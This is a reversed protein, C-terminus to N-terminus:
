TEKSAELLHHPLHRLAYLRSYGELTRWGLCYEAWRRHFGALRGRLREEVFERLSDYFIKFGATDGIQPSVGLFRRVHALILRCQFDPRGVLGALQEISVPDRSTLLLGMFDDVRDYEVADVREQIQRWVYRFVDPLTGIDAFIKLADDKSANSSLLDCVLKLILFNGKVQLAIKRCEEPPLPDTWFRLKKGLYNTADDLNDPSEPDLAYRHYAFPLSAKELWEPRASLLVFVGNPLKAPLPVADAPKGGVAEDLGDLILVKSERLKGLLAGLKEPAQDLINPPDLRFDAPLDEGHHEQLMAYITQACQIPQDHGGYRYFFCARKKHDKEWKLLFATKGLGAPATLIFYGSKNSKLFRDVEGRLHKRGVFEEENYHASLESLQDVYKPADKAKFVRTNPSSSYLVPIGWLGDGDPHAYYHDSRFQQLAFEFSNGCTIQWYICQALLLATTQPLQCQMGVVVPVGSGAIPCALPRILGEVNQDVYGSWCCNLVVVRVGTEQCLSAFRAALVYDAVRRSATHEGELVLAAEQLENHAGPIDGHGIYHVIKPQFAQMKEQLRSITASELIDVNRAGLKRELLNLVAKAEEEVGAINRMPDAWVILVKVQGLPESGTEVLEAGLQRLLHINPNLALFTEPYPIPLEQKECMSRAQDTMHLFEWPLGAITPSDARMWLRLPTRASAGSLARAFAANSEPTPFALAWLRLGLERLFGADTNFARFRALEHAFASATKVPDSPIVTIFHDLNSHLTPM